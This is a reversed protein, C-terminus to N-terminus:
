DNENKMKEKFYVMGEGNCTRCTKPTDNNLGVKMMSYFGPPLLGKGNCVPCIRCGGTTERIDLLVELILSLQKAMQGRTVRVETAADSSLTFEVPCDDRLIEEKSRM